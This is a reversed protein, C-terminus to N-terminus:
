THGGLLLGLWYALGLVVALVALALAGNTVRQAPSMAALSRRRTWAWLAAAAAFILLAIPLTAGLWGAALALGAFALDAGAASLNPRRM